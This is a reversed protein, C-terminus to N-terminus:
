GSKFFILFILFKYNKSYVSPFHLNKSWTLIVNKCGLFRKKKRDLVDDFQIDLGIFVYLCVFLSPLFKFNKVLIM